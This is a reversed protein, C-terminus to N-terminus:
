TFKYYRFIVLINVMEVQAGTKSNNFRSVKKKKKKLYMFQFKHFLFHKKFSIVKLFKQM